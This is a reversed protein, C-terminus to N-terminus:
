EGVFCPTAYESNESQPNDGFSRNKIGTHQAYDQLHNYCKFGYKECVRAVWIDDCAILGQADEQSLNEPNTKFTSYISILKKSLDEYFLHCVLAYLAQNPIHWFNSYNYPNRSNKNYGAFFGVCGVKDLRHIQSELLDILINKINNGLVCDDVLCLVPFNNSIRLSEFLGNKTDPAYITDHCKLSYKNCLTHVDNTLPSNDNVIKIEGLDYLNKELCSVITRELLNLREKNKVHTRIVTDM